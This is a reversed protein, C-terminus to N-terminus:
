PDLHAADLLQLQSPTLARIRARIMRGTVRLNAAWAGPDAHESVQELLDDFPILLMAADRDCQSEIIRHHERSGWTHKTDRIAHQIEHSLTCRERHPHLDPALYIAHHRPIWLGGHGTPITTHIVPLGLATAHTYPDYNTM